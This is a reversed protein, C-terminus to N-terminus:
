IQLVRDFLKLVSALFLITFAIIIIIVIIHRLTVGAKKFAM